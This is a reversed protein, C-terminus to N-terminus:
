VIQLLVNILAALAALGILLCLGLVSYLIRDMANAEWRAFYVGGAGGM